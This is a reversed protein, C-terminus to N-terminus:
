LFRFFIGMQWILFAFPGTENDPRTGHSAHPPSYLRVGNEAFIFFEKFFEYEFGVTLHLTGLTTAAWFWAEPPMRVRKVGEMFTAGVGLRLNVQARRFFLQDLGLISSLSTFPRIGILLTYTQFDSLKTPVGAIMDGYGQHYGWDLTFFTDVEKDTHIYTTLEVGYGTRFFRGILNKGFSQGFYYEVASLHMAFKPFAREQWEEV